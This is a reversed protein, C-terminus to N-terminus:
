RADSRFPALRAQKEAHPLRATLNLALELRAMSQSKRDADAIAEAMIRMARYRQIKKVEATDIMASVTALDWVFVAPAM